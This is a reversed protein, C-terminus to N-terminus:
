KEQRQKDIQRLKEINKLLERNEETRAQIMKKAKAKNRKSSQKLQKISKEMYRLHKDLEQMMEPDKKKKQITDDAIDKVHNRYIKHFGLIKDSDEPQQMTFQLTQIFETIKTEAQKTERKAKNFDNELKKILDNKLEVNDQMQKLSKTHMEFLKELDALNQKM